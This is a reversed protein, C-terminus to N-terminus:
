RGQDLRSLTLGISNAFRRVAMSVLKDRNGYRPLRWVPPAEPRACARAIEMPTARGAWIVAAWEADRVINQNARALARLYRKYDVFEKYHVGRRRVEPFDSEIRQFFRPLMENFPGGDEYTVTERIRERQDDNGRLAVDDANLPGLCRPMGAAGAPAFPPVDDAPHAYYFWRYRPDLRANGLNPNQACEEVTPICSGRNAAFFRLEREWEELTPIIADEIFWRDVIGWKNLWFQFRDSDLVRKRSPDRTRWVEQHLSQWFPVPGYRLACLFLYRRQHLNPTNIGEGL